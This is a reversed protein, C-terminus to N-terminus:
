NSAEYVNTAFVNVFYYSAKSKSTPWIERKTGETLLNTVFTWSADSKTAAGAEVVM